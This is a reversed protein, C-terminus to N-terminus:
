EADRSALKQLAKRAHRRVNENVHYKAAKLLQVAVPHNIKAVADLASNLLHGVKGRPISANTNDLVHKLYPVADVDGIHGLADIVLDLVDVAANTEYSILPNVARRDKFKGLAVIAYKRATIDSSNLLPTLIEIARKDGLNGLAAISARHLYANEHELFGKAVEFVREDQLLSLAILADIQNDKDDQRGYYVTWLPEIARRDGIERLAWLAAWRSWHKESPLLYEILPEVAAEGYAIIDRVVINLRIINQSHAEPTDPVSEIWDFLPQLFPDSSSDYSAM